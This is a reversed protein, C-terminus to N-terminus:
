IIKSDYINNQAQTNAKTHITKNKTNGNLHKHLQISLLQLYCTRIKMIINIPLLATFRVLFQYIPFLKLYIM